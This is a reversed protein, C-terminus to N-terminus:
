PRNLYLGCATSDNEDLAPSPRVIASRSAAFVAHGPFSTLPILLALAISLCVVGRATRRKSGGSRLLKGM